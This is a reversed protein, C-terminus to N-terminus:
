RSGSGATCGFCQKGTIIEKDIILNETEWITGLDYDGDTDMQENFNCDFIRGDWGINISDSCMLNETSEPSFNDVLRNMYSELKGRRSLYDAFRKVPMNNLCSLKTFVINFNNWLEERYKGELASAPPALGEGSPNYVLNLELNTGLHGYGKSNLKQLGQISLNFVGAGRQLNVNKKSYCPLSAIIKVENQALFDALDEQNPESLCTLNCRDVISLGQKRAETVLYRFHQQLEPAGGTIDLTTISPTNKLVYLLRDVGPLDMMETRQPSSEVHCHNCTQNCYLGLTLICTEPKKRSINSVLESFAPISELDNLRRAKLLTAKIGSSFLRRSM